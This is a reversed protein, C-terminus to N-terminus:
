QNVVDARLKQNELLLPEKHPEEEFVNEVNISINLIQLGAGIQLSRIIKGQLERAEKIIRTGYQVNVILTAEISGDSFNVRINRELIKRSLPEGNKMGPFRFCRSKEVERQIFRRVITPSVQVRGHESDFYGIM